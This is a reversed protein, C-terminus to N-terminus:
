SVSCIVCNPNWYYHVTTLLPSQKRTASSHSKVEVLIHQCTTRSNECNHINTSHDELYSMTYYLLYWLFVNVGLATFVCANLEGSLVNAVLPDCCLIQCIQTIPISPFMQLHVKLLYLTMVCNAFNAAPSCDNRQRVWMITYCNLDKLHEKQFIVFKSNLCKNCILLIVVYPINDYSLLSHYSNLQFASMFYTSVFHLIIALYIYLICPFGKM